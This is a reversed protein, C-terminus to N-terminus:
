DGTLGWALGKAGGALGMTIGGALRRAFTAGNSSDGPLCPHSPELERSCKAKLQACGQSACCIPLHTGLIVAPSDTLEAGWLLNEQLLNSHDGEHCGYAENVSGWM